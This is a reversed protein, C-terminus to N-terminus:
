WLSEFVIIQNHANQVESMKYVLCNISFITLLNFHYHFYDWKACPQFFVTQFHWHLSGPCLLASDDWSAYLVRYSHSCHVMHSSTHLSSPFSVSVLSLSECDETGIHSRFIYLHHARLASLLAPGKHRHNVKAFRRYIKVRHQIMPMEKKQITNFYQIM